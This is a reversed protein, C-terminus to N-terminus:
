IIEGGQVVSVYAESKGYEEIFEADLRALDPEDIPIQANHLTDWFKDDYTPPSVRGAGSIKARHCLIDALTVLSVFASDVQAEWPRHHNRVADCIMYPLNWKEALWAGVTGHSVGLVHEEADELTQAEGSAVLQSIQALENEFYQNLIMKGMDHLLGAVFVEGAYRPAASKAITRAAVGCAASHEWFKVADFGTAGSDGKDKFVDFVTLGLVLEKVTNFGLVVVAMNITSIERAYGYYASNALKLLKATLAQDTSILRALTEASSKRSDIMQLMKSVVTPLTPLALVRQVKQKITDRPIPRKEITM